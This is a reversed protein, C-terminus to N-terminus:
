DVEKALPDLLEILARETQARSLGADRRLLAWMSVDCVAVYQALRRRRNAGTLASLAPRFAKACWARHGAKGQDAVEKVAPNRDAEALLRLVRDGFEEYHDVLARVAGALDGLVVDMRDALVRSTERDVAAAFLGEKGGFRRIVTQVTVGARAAVDELRIDDTLREWFLEVAADVIREGTAATSAARASMRYSRTAEAASSKM